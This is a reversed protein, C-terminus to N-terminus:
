IAKPKICETKTREFYHAILAVYGRRVLMKALCQYISADKMGDAGHLLLIAPHRGEKDPAFCEMVIAKGDVTFSRTSEKITEAAAPSGLLALAALAIPLGASLPRYLFSSQPMQQNWPM